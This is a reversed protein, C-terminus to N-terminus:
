EHNNHIKKKLRHRLFKKQLELNKQRSIYACKKNSYEDIIFNVLFEKHDDDHGRSIYFEPFLSEWEINNRVYIYVKKKFNSRSDICIKIATDTAKCLRYTSICPKESNPSVNFETNIKENNQLVAICFECYIQDCTLLKQEIANAIFVIGSDQLEDVIYQGRVQQDWQMYEITDESSELVDIEKTLKLEDSYDSVDAELTQRNSRFSSVTLVNSTVETLNNLMENSSINVKRSVPVECHHQIKRYASSFQHPLPSDACGNMSRIQGIFRELHDQSLRYTAFFAMWHNEEVFESYMSILSTICTIYGRFGTKWESNIIKMRRKNKPHRIEISLIYDKMQNLFVFIDSKNEPNLASKYIRISNSKVRQTNMIDWLCDFKRVFNITEEAGEFGPTGNKMLLEMSNATSNSLTEVATRVHMIRDKYQIHRKNLKHTLGFNKHRSFDVLNVFYQWQVKKKDIFFTGLTGLTNRVLKEMHSPDYVIRIRREEHTFYAIYNGEKSNLDAGLINSMAANSKYGDFTLNGVVIKRKAFENLIQTIVRVRGNAKLTKIFYYAIPMQFYLNLGSAMFIIVNSALKFEEESNVDEDVSEDILGIFDEKARSWSMNQKIAMEDMLLSVVLEQGNQRMKNAKQEINDFSQLSIGSEGNLNSRRYWERMTEPHPVNKGFKERFYTYAKPSLYNLSMCFARVSPPYKERPRVGNILVHVIENTQFAQFIFM